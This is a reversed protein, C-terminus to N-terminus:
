PLAARQRRGASRLWGHGSGLTCRRAGPVRDNCTPAELRAWHAAVADVPRSNCTPSLQARPRTRREPGPRRGRPGARNRGAAGAGAGARNRRRWELARARPAQGTGGAWEPARGPGGGPGCRRDLGVWGVSARGDQGAHGAEDLAVLLPKGKLGSIGHDREPLPVGGQDEGGPERLLGVRLHPELELPGVRGARELVAAHGRRHRGGHALSRPREDAGGGAVGGGRGGGVRGPGTQAARDDDRLALDGGALQSLREHVAGAHDGQAPVEVLREREHALQGVAM